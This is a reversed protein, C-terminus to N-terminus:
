TGIPWPCHGWAYLCLLVPIAEACSRSLGQTDWGIGMSSDCQYNIQPFVQINSNVSVGWGVQCLKLLDALFFGGFIGLHFHAFSISM